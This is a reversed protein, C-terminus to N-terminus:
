NVTKLRVYDELTAERAVKSRTVYCAKDEKATGSPVFKEERVRSKMKSICYNVLTKVQENVESTCEPFFTRKGRNEM